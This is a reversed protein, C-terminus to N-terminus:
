NTVRIAALVMLAMVCAFGGLWALSRLGGKAALYFAGHLIRFAVFSVALASLIGTAYLGFMVLGQLNAFGWM